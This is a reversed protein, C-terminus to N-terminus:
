VVESPILMDTSPPEGCDQAIQSAIALLDAAYPYAGLICLAAQSPTLVRSWICMKYQALLSHEDRLISKLREVDEFTSEYQVASHPCGDPTSLSADLKQLLQRRQRVSNGLVGLYMRRLQVIQAQQMPDLMLSNGITRWQQQGPPPPRPEGDPLLCHMQTARGPNATAMCGMLVGTEFVLRALRQGGASDPKGAAEMLAMSVAEMYDKWLKCFEPWTLAAVQERTLRIPNGGRLTFTLMGDLHLRQEVMQQTVDDLWWVAPHQVGGAEGLLRNHLGVFQELVQNHGELVEAKSQTRELQVALEVVRGELEHSSRRHLDLGGSTAKRLTSRRPLMPKEIIRRAVEFSKPREVPGDSTCAEPSSSRDAWVDADNVPPTLPNPM